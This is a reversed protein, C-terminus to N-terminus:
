QKAQALIFEAMLKLAQKSADADPNRTVFTHPQGEFEQLTAHGGANRYAATFNSAMDRPLNDDNTGQIVLLPPLTGHEGRELLLQPNGEAMAAESPWYAAHADLLNKIQKEQAMRFRRLPDAVPWAAIVYALTADFAQTQPTVLASFRSDDPRLMSLLLQHGGSSTGLGGVLDPKSGLAAANAKLWRTALHVDSISVPYAGAPPMRFEPAAVVIGHSALYDDILANQKRDGMVWGGGHIDVIAPFPGVGKPRAVRILMTSGDPRACEMDRVDIEFTKIAVPTQM